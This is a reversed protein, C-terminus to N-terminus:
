RWGSVRRQVSHTEKQQRVSRLFLFAALRMSVCEVRCDCQVARFGEVGQGTGEEGFDVICEGFVVAVLVDAGDDDGATFLGKGTRM